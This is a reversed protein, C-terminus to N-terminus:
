FWIHRDLGKRISHSSIKLNKRGFFRELENNMSQVRYVSGKQSVFLYDENDIARSFSSHINYIKLRLNLCSFYLKYKQCCVCM